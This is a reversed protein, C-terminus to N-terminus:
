QIVLEPHLNIYASNRMIELRVTIMGNKSYISIANILFNTKPVIEIFIYVRIEFVVIKNSFGNM